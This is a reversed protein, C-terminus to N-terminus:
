CLFNLPNTLLPFAAKFKCENLHSPHIVNIKLNRYFSVLGEPIVIRPLFFWIQKSFFFLNKKQLTRSSYSNNLERKSYSKSHFMRVIPNFITLFFTIVFLSLLQRTMFQIVSILAM